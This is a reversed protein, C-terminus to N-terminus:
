KKSHQLQKQLDKPLKEVEEARRLTNLSLPYENTRDVESKLQRSHAFAFEWVSPEKM